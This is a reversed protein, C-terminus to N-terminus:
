PIGCEDISYSVNVVGEAKNCEKRRQRRILAYRGSEGLIASAQRCLPLKIHHVGAGQALHEEGYLADVVLRLDHALGYCPKHRILEGM